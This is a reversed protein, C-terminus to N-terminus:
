QVGAVSIDPLGPPRPKMNLKKADPATPMTTSLSSSKMDDVWPQLKAKQKPDKTEIYKQVITAAKERPIDALTKGQKRLKDVDSIDFASTGQPDDPIKAQVSPPLNNQWIHVLEHGKQAAGFDQPRNVEITNNGAGQDVNAIPVGGGRNNPDSIAAGQKIAVPITSVANQVQSPVDSSAPDNGDSLATLKKPVGGLAEGAADYTKRKQDANSQNVIAKVGTTVKAGAGAASAAEGARGAARFTAWVKPNNAVFDILERAHLIGGGSTKTGLLLGFATALSAGVPHTVGATGAGAILGLRVLKQANAATKADKSLSQLETEVWAQGKQAAKIGFLQDKTADNIRGWSTLFQAPNFGTGEDIAKSLLNKFVADGFHQVAEPGLLESLNALNYQTKGSSALGSANKTGIFAKAADDPKGLMLAKIVPDDYKSIKNRYDDRLAKYEGSVTDDGSQEALQSFTDDFASSHDEADWLLRKLARANIDGPPYNSALARIEQRLKIVSRADYPAADQAEPEVDASEVAKGNADLLKPKSANATDAAEIDEETLSKKGTAINELLEKVPKDLKQGRAEAAQQVFDHDEPDPKALIDEAKHALPAETPEVEAGELRDAFENTKNEYNTHLADEANHLRGQINEKINQETPASAATEALEGATKGARGLKSAVSGVLEGAGGMVGATGAMEAGTKVAEGLDGTRTLTQAGQVIGAKLAAAGIKLAKIIKPSKELVAMIKSTDALGKATTLAGEGGLFEALTEGGYGIDQATEAVSGPAGTNQSHQDLFDAAKYSADYGPGFPSVAAAHAFGSLTSAAGHLAGKAMNGIDGPIEGLKLNMFDQDFSPGAESTAGQPIPTSYEDSAVPAQSTAGQPIPTSYEDQPAAPPAAQGNLNSIM